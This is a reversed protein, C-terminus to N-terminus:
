IRFILIMHSLGSVHILAMRGELGQHTGDGMWEHLM